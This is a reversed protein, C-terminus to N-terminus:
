PRDSIAERVDFTQRRGFEDLLERSRRDLRPPLTLQLTVVLDGAPEAASAPVGQGPVRITTGTNSAPPIEITLAGSPGPVTVEAGLAAEHIATPLTIHLDRGVRQWLPHPTVAVTVYLDGAPGGLAGADGRGPVTVRAGDTMGAPLHLTVVETRPGVGVGQCQRCLDAAVQGHGGCRDCAKTFVMHGRAWRRRGEGQCDPCLRPAGPLRGAGSCAPCREQRTISLPVSAGRMADVFPIDVNAFVDAGRTPTTAERAAHQFVDAFLESFTAALPGEAPANFDFGAFAVAEVTDEAALPGGRDYDHRRAADGLIAFAEAVHAYMEAAVHDGPNIGPHYRRVLRRYAREIEATSAARSLGLVSYPDM